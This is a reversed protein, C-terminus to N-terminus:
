ERRAWGDECGLEGRLALEYRLLLLLLLIKRRRDIGRRSWELVIEEGELKLEGGRRVRTTESRRLGRERRHCQIM